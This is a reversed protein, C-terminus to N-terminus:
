DLSGVERGAGTALGGGFWGARGGAGAGGAGAGARMEVRSSVRQKKKSSGGSPLRRRGASAAGRMGGVAAPDSPYLVPEDGRDEEGRDGEGEGKEGGRPARPRGVLIAWSTHVCGLRQMSIQKLLIEPVYIVVGNGDM